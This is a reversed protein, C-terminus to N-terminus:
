ECCRLRMDVTPIIKNILWVDEEWSVVNGGLCKMFDENELVHDWLQFYYLSGAFGPLPSKVQSDWNKLFHGLILTGNPTLSQPQDMVVLIRETNLFLELRGKVGDWLLCITHWQFPALQYRIYFTKGLNSLILQQHDGALGLDIDERGLFTNNTIYSFAMWDSSKDDVFVLDICATFRSLEPVTNTLSVYTDARGYFDLRKGKLSLADSLFTGSLMLILGYFKQCIIHEKMTYVKKGYLHLLEHLKPDAKPSRM